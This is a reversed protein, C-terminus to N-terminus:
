IIIYTMLSLLLFPAFFSLLIASLTAKKTEQKKDKFTLLLLNLNTLWNGEKNRLVKFKPSINGNCHMTLYIYSPSMYNNVHFCPHHYFNQFSSASTQLVLLQFEASKRELSSHSQSISSAMKFNPALTVTRSNQFAARQNTNYLHIFALIHQMLHSRLKKHVWPLTCTTCATYYM